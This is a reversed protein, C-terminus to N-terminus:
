VLKEGLVSIRTSAGLGKETLDTWRTKEARLGKGDQCNNIFDSGHRATLKDLRQNKINESITVNRGFSIGADTYHQLFMLCGRYLKRRCTEKGFDVKNM